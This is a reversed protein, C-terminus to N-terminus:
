AATTIMVERGAPRRPTAARSEGRSGLGRPLPVIRQERAGGRASPANLMGLLFAHRNASPPLLQDGERRWYAGGRLYDAVDGRM